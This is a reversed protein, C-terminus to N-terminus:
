LGLEGLGRRIGEAALEQAGVWRGGRRIFAGIELLNQTLSKQEEQFSFVELVREEKAHFLVLCLVVRAPSEVGWRGGLRERWQMLQPILLYDASVCDGVSSWYQRRNEPFSSSGSLVAKRCREVREPGKPSSYGRKDLQHLLEDTLQELVRDPVDEGSRDFPCLCKRGSGPQYFPAVALENESSRLGARKQPACSWAVALLLLLPLCFRLKGCKM